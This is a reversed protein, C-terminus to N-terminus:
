NRAVGRRIVYVLAIGIAAAGLALAIHRCSIPSKKVRDVAALDGIYYKKLMERAESSHGVDNFDKTADRGAVDVLSDEGGPHELRFQTVDYVKNDIVIWLDKAKNHQKVTALYIEKSM